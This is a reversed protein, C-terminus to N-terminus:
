GALWIDSRSHKSVKIQGEKERKKHPKMRKNGKKGLDEGEPAAVVVTV